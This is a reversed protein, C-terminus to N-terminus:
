RRNIGNSELLGGDDDAISRGGDSKAYCNIAGIQMARATAHAGPGTSGSVIIVPTPRLEMIKELFSLGDMGPMEVDLTVVDPNLAKILQRAEAADRATGVVTIGADASLKRKILARMVASDDVILVRVSM